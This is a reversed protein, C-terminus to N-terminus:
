PWQGEYRGKSAAGTVFHLEKHWSWRYEADEFGRDKATWVDHIFDFDGEYRRGYHACHRLWVDRRVVFCGLDISGLTPPGHNDAPYYGGPKRSGVIVVDPGAGNVRESEVILRLAEVVEPGALVDDDCLFHVYEGHLAGAYVPVRAFMGGVGVGVFDPVIVQECLAAVTQAQVSAICAALQTPRRFTPTYFSIYPQQPM